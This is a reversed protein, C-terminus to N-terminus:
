WKALIDVDFLLEHQFVLKRPFHFILVYLVLHSFSRARSDKEAVLLSIFFLELIDLLCVEREM